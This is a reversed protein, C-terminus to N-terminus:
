KSLEKELFEFLRDMEEDTGITIRLYNDTRAGNFYRVFINEERLREFLTKAPVEPHTVFIFNAKSDGFEFGLKKFREKSRERTDIIKNVTERFYDEDELSAAGVATTIPNITYSNFSNRVAWLYSIMKKSGIAFGIRIGALSRSKSFTQVVLLNDYKDLLSLASKTGFDVYAEDIIVVSSPNAKLIKEIDGLSLALGTPANPNPFIIGGNECMYDGANIKMDKDLPVKKYPINYLDAWVDYFSYTVDPFLVPKESCFYTLFATALVDDSGTGVFVQEKEVNFYSAIAETLETCNPDPYKRFSKYDMSKLIEAAKPSPPYPNENTNLKIINSAKPQEGPVYPTVKRVNKEWLNM